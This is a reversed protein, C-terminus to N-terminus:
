GRKEQLRDFLARFVPAYHEKILRKSEEAGAQDYTHSLLNRKALADLLTETEEETLYGAEFGRRIAERPTSVSFGEYYLLDKLTNWSLELTFEFMKVLGALELESYSKKRCAAELQKLAKGFNEHRQRWRRESSNAM